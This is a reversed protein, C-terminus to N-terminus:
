SHRLRLRLRLVHKGPLTVIYGNLWEVISCNLLAYVGAIKRLVGRLRLRLRLRLLVDALCVSGPRCSEPLNSDFCPPRRIVM